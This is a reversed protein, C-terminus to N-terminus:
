GGYKWQFGGSSKQKGECCYLIARRNIGTAREAEGAGWFTNILKNNKLQQIQKSNQNDAGFRYGRRLVRFKHLNNELVTCWELNDVRNDTKIGNKHNVCPKNETNPIFAEAVLRHVQKRKKVDNNVLYVTCYGTRLVQQKKLRIRGTKNTHTQRSYVDGTDTIYYDPFGEIRLARKM